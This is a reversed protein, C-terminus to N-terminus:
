EAWFVAKKWDSWKSIILEGKGRGCYGARRDDFQVEDENSVCLIM